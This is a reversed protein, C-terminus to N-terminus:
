GRSTRMGRCGSDGHCTRRWPFASGSGRRRANRRRPGTMSCGSPDSAMPAALTGAVLTGGDDAGGRDGVPSAAGPSRYRQRRRHHEPSPMAEGPRQLPRPRAPGRGECPADRGGRAFAGPRPDVLSLGRGRARDGRQRVLADRLHFVCLSIGTARVDGLHPGDEGPLRAVGPRDVGKYAEVEVIRGARDGKALVKNLLWPAVDM